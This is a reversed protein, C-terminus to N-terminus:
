EEWEIRATGFYEQCEGAFEEAEERSAYIKNGTELKGYEMYLNVWGEKKECAMMLDSVDQQSIYCRGDITYSVVRETKGTRDQISVLAVIPYEGAKDWCVIRAPRGDRTCVKKGAKAEELNFEKM